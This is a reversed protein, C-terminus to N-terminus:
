YRHYRLFECSPQAFIDDPLAQHNKLSSFMVLILIDLDQIFATVGRFPGEQSADVPQGSASKATQRVM